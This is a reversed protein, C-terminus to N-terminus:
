CRTHSVGLDLEGLALTEDVGLFDAPLWSPLGYGSSSKPVPRIGRATRMVRAGARLDFDVWRGDVFVQHGSM